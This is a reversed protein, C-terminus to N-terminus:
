EERLAAMPEIRSARRAPLLIAVCSAVVLIAPVGVFTVPDTPAIGYLLSATFRSLAFAAALGIALGAGVVLFGQRLITGGVSIPRAGLAMRIGIERTRMRVSHNAVGYLGVVALVLGIFGFASFLAGSVRPLLAADNIHQDLTKVNFLPLDRDLSDVQQRIAPLVRRPDGNVRVMTTVGFMSLADDFDSFYRFMCAVEGEGLTEVKANRVVGIVELSKSKPDDGQRVHRGIPDERGFLQKALTQNIIAVAAKDDRQPDFDRGRLLFTGSAPFYHSGVRFNDGRIRKGTASDADVFDGNNVALSLSPLDVYGMAEVGPIAEVRRQLELFFRKAKDATYGQGKPDIAMMLAGEGKMGVDISSANRLSRLFLGAGVLLVVSLAVQVGVFTSALRGQHSGAGWGIGRIANTLSGRTGTLAPALGFLIGTAVALATTFALVRFDPSFDLQMPIGLPPQVQALAATGPV